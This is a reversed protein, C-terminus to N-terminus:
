QNSCICRSHKSLTAVVNKIVKHVSDLDKHVWQLIIQIFKLGDVSFGEDTKEYNFEDKMLSDDYKTLMEDHEVANRFVNDNDSIISQASPKFNDVKLMFTTDSQNINFSHKIKDFLVSLDPIVKETCLHKILKLIDKDVFSIEKINENFFKMNHSKGFLLIFLIKDLEHEDIFDLIHENHSKRIIKVIFQKFDHTLKLDFKKSKRSVHAKMKADKTPYSWMITMISSKNEYFIHDSCYGISNLNGNLASLFMKLVSYEITNHFEDLFEKPDKKSFLQNPIIINKVIRKLIDFKNNTNQFEFLAKLLNPKLVDNTIMTWEFLRPPKTFSKGLFLNTSILAFRPDRYKDINNLNFVHKEIFAKTDDGDLIRSAILLWFKSIFNNLPEAIKLM